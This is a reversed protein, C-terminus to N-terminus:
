VLAEIREELDRYNPDTKKVELFSSLAKEVNGLSEYARGLEYHVVVMEKDTLENELTKEYLDAVDQTRGLEILCNGIMTACELLRGAGRQAREFENIAEDLLGM